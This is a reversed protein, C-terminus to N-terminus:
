PNVAPGALGHRWAWAILGARDQMALKALIHNLHSKVTAESIFMAKAVQRNNLGQAVLRVVDAERPTLGEAEASPVAPAGTGTGPGAAAPDTVVLEVLRQQVASDLVTRGAAVDRVAALLAEGTVDKTLYGVAGARLAPLVADDDAYTTLILVRTGTGATAIRETVQAGNLGPMRLDVLAVDPQLDLALELAQRGDAAEGAVEIDGSTSLLLVVGQRVVAQDIPGTVATSAGEAAAVARIAQLQMSLGALSHALVDHMERAIRNREEAAAAAELQTLRSAEVEALLALSRDREAELAAREISRDALAWAGVGALLGIANGSIALVVVGFAVSVTGVALNRVWGAPLYRPLISTGALAPIEGVGRPAVLMAALGAAICALAAFLGPRQAPFRRTLLLGVEAGAVLVGAAVKAATGHAYLVSVVGCALIIAPGALRRTGLSEGPVTGAQAVSAVM